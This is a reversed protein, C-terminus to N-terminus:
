AAREVDHGGRARRGDDALPSRRRAGRGQAPRRFRCRRARARPSSRPAGRGTRGRPADDRAVRSGEAATERRRCTSCPRRTGRRWGSRGVLRETCEADPRLPLPDPASGRDDLPSLQLARRPVPRGGPSAHLGFRETAPRACASRTQAELVRIPTAALACWADLAKLYHHALMEADDERGASRARDLRRGAISRPGTPVRSRGTPSRASSCTGSPTSGRRRGVLPACPPRVGEARPPPAAGRRAADPRRDAELAGLWFVKGVVAADQLLEKEDAPLADLRAAIIGQVTEPLATAAAASTASCACSSSPTSRTAARARSSRRRCEAALLPRELLPRSLRATEDDSLPSLSITLANASGAAGARDASSCSRGRPASSSCRCVADGLRRSRRRLRAPRTPGTSTRSSSCWRDGSPSRRSSAAGLSCLETGQRDDSRDPGPQAGVLPRLQVRGRSAGARQM